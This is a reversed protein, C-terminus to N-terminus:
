DTISRQLMTLGAWGSRTGEHSTTDGVVIQKKGNMDAREMLMIEKEIEPHV